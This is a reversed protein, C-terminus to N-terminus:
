MSHYYDELNYVADLVESGCEFEGFGRSLGIGPRKAPPKDLCPLEKNIARNRYRVLIRIGRSFQMLEDIDKNPDLKTLQQLSKEIADTALDVFIDYRDKEM